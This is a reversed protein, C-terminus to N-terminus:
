EIKKECYRLCDKPKHLYRWQMGDRPRVQNSKIPDKLCLIYSFPIYIKGPPVSPFDDFPVRSLAQMCWYIRKMKVMLYWSLLDWQLICQVLSYFRHFGQTFYSIHVNQHSPLLYPSSIRQPGVGFLSHAEQQIQQIVVMPSTKVSNHHFFKFYFFM